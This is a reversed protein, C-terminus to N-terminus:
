FVNEMQGSPAIHMNLNEEMGFEGNVSLYDELKIDIYEKTAADFDSIPTQLNFIKKYNMDIPVGKGVKRDLANQIQIVELTMDDRLNQDVDDVYKKTSADDDNTPTGLNVIKRGSLNTKGLTPNAAFKAIQGNVFRMNAGQDDVTPDKVNFIIHDDMDLDAKMKFTEVRSLFMNQVDSFSVLNDANAKLQAFTQPKSNKVNFKTQLNVDSPPNKLQNMTVADELDVGEGVNTLRKGDADFNGNSDMQMGGSGGGSEGLNLRKLWNQVDFSYRDVNNMRGM